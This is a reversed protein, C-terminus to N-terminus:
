GREASRLWDAIEAGYRAIASWDRFDGEPPKLAAVVAKERFGLASKDLRGAFTRHDVAEASEGVSGIDVCEGEPVLQEPPGLPGSSFLWVPRAALQSTFREALERAPDLWHGYYVASGVIIADYGDLTEVQDAPRVEADHGARRLAEALAEAIEATAGHRTAYAVLCVSV